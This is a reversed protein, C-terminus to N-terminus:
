RGSALQKGASEDAVALHGTIGCLGGGRKKQPHYYAATGWFGLHYWLTQGDARDGDGGATIKRATMAAPKLM